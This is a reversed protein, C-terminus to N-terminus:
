YLMEIIAEAEGRFANLTENRDDEAASGLYERLVEAKKFIKKEADEVAYLFGTKRALLPKLDIYDDMNGRTEPFCGAKEKLAWSNLPSCGGDAAKLLDSFGGKEMVFVPFVPCSLPWGPLTYMMTLGPDEESKVGRICMVSVTSANVVYDRYPRIVAKARRPIKQLRLDEGTYGHRLNRSGERILFEATIPTRDSFLAETSAYRIYGYGRDRDRSHSFNTRILYGEPVTSEDTVDYRIYDSFGAEFYAAGGEADIVGFNASLGWTRLSDQLLVEFDGLDGCLRLALKMFAGERDTELACSQGYNINYSHTNMIAFGAENAGMWVQSRSSDSCNVIGTFSYPEAEFYELANEEASSDRLKWLLPRGDESATGAIVASTCAEASSFGALILVTLVLTIRGASFTM